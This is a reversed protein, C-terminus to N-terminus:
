LRAWFATSPWQLSGAPQHREAIALVIPQPKKLLSRAMASYASRIQFSSGSRTSLQRCGRLQPLRRLTFGARRWGGGGRGALSSQGTSRPRGSASRSSARSPARENTISPSLTNAGSSCGGCGWGGRM